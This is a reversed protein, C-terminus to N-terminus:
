RAFGYDASGPASCLKVRRAAGHVIFVKENNSGPDGPFVFFGYGRATHNM